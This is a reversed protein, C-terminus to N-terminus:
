CITIIKSNQCFVKKIWDEDQPDTFGGHKYKGRWKKEGKILTPQIGTIVYLPADQVVEKLKDKAENDIPYETNCSMKAIFSKSFIYSADDYPSINPHVRFYIKNKKIESMGIYILYRNDDKLQDWPLPPANAKDWTASNFCMLTKWNLKIDSEKLKPERKKRTKKKAEIKRRPKPSQSYSPIKEDDIGKMGIIEKMTEKKREIVNKEVENPDTFINRFEDPLKYVPNDQVLRLVVKSLNKKSTTRKNHKESYQYRYSKFQSQKRKYSTICFTEM